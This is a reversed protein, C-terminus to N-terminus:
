YNDVLLGTGFVTYPVCASGGQATIFMSTYANQKNMSIEIGQAFLQGDAGHARGMLFIKGQLETPIPKAVYVTSSRASYGGTCEADVRVAPSGTSYDLIFSDVQSPRGPYLDGPGYNQREVYGEARAEEETICLMSDRVELGTVGTDTDLWYMEVFVKEGLAPEVGITDFYLKTVDADGWDEEMGPSIIVTKSWGKSVGASQGGSMKVVLKLPLAEHIIGKVIVASPIVWAADFIVNPVARLMAPADALISYGAMVRSYNLKIYLNLGSIEAAEGLISKSKVGKALTNWAAMQEPTLTQFSKSIQRLSARRVLQVPTAMGTPWTRCSLISRGHVHRATVDKASGSFGSFAISPRVIM